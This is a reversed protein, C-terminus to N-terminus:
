PQPADPAFKSVPEIPPPLSYSSFPFIFFSLFFSHIFNWGYMSRFKLVPVALIMGWEGGDSAGVMWGNILENM